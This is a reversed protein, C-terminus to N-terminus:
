GYQHYAQILLLIWRGLENLWGPGRKILLYQLYIFVASKLVIVCFYVKIIHLQLMTQDLSPIHTILMQQFSRTVENEAPTMNNYLGLCPVYITTQIRYFFFVCFFLMSKFQGKFLELCPLCILAQIRYIFMSKFLGKYLKAM